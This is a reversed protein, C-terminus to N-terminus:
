LTFNFTVFGTAKVPDGDRLFPKFRWKKIAEGAAPQLLSPGSLDKVEEVHGNEDILVEARVVGQMRMSRATAPYRPQPRDTAFDILSGVELPGTEKKSEAITEVPKTPAAAPEKEPKSAIVTRERVPQNSSRVPESMVTKEVKNGQEPETTKPQATEVIKQVSPKPEAPPSAQDAPKQVAAIQDTSSNKDIVPGQVANIIKSQSSAIDERSEAIADRWRKADYEDRALFSRSTTAEELLGNAMSTKTKDDKLEKTQTIVLEVIQRMQEIDNVAELPLNRDSVLLGFARYREAKNRSGRIVQGAVASYYEASFANNSKYSNYFKELFERSRQYDGQELYINMMLGNVVANVASDSSERSITELEYLAAPYNRVAINAKAKSIRDRMVEGSTPGDTPSIQPTAAPQNAAQAYSYINFSFLVLSVIIFLRTVNLPM